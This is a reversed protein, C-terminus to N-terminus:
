KESPFFDEDNEAIVPFGHKDQLDGRVNIRKEEAMFAIQDSVDLEEAQKSDIVGAKALAAALLKAM